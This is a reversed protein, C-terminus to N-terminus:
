NHTRVTQVVYETQQLHFTQASGPATQVDSGAVNDDFLVCSSNMSPLPELLLIDHETFAHLTLTHPREDQKDLARRVMAVHGAPALRTLTFLFNEDSQLVDCLGCTPRCCVLGLM